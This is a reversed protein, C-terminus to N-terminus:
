VLKAAFSLFKPIGNDSKFGFLVIKLFSLLPLVIIEFLKLFSLLLLQPLLGHLLTKVGLSEGAFVWGLDAHVGFILTSSVGSGVFVSLFKILTAPFNDSGLLYGGLIRM